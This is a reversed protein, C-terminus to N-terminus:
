LWSYETHVSWHGDLYNKLLDSDHGRAQGIICNLMEFLITALTKEKELLLKNDDLNEQVTRPPIWKLPTTLPRTIGQPLKAPHSVIQMWLGKYTTGNELITSTGLVDGYLQCQLVAEDLFRINHTAVGYLALFRPVADLFDAWLQPPDDRHSLASHTDKLAFRPARRLLYEAQRHVAGLYREDSTGLLLLAACPHQTQPLATDM